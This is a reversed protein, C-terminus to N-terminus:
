MNWDVGESFFRSYLGVRWACQERVGCVCWRRGVSVVPRVSVCFRLLSPRCQVCACTILILFPRGRGVQPCILCGHEVDGCQFFEGRWCQLWVCEGVQVGPCPCRFRSRHVQVSVQVQVTQIPSQLSQNQVRQVNTQFRSRSGPCPCPCPGPGPQSV